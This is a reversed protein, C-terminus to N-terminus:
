ARASRSYTIKITHTRETLLINGDTFNASALTSVKRIRRSFHLFLAVIHRVWISVRIELASQDSLYDSHMASSYMTKLVDPEIFSRVWVLVSIPM